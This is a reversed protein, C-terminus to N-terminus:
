FFYPQSAWMLSGLVFLLLRLPIQPEFEKQASCSKWWGKIIQLTRKHWSTPNFFTTSYMSLWTTLFSHIYLCSVLSLLARRRLQKTNNRVQTKSLPLTKLKAVILNWEPGGGTTTPSWLSGAAGVLVGHFISSLHISPPHYTTLFVSKHNGKV